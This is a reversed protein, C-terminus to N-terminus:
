FPKDGAITVRHGSRVQPYYDWVAHHEVCRNDWFAVSHPKWRFRVQFNPNQCHAFLFKLVADSEAKAMGVIHTTYQADAFLCKRRTVPHTRVIPQATVPFRKNPDTTYKRYIMEGDHVATLGELYAKMRDSLAEYAAYQSSFLTDGGVPPVTHLHLISGMPPEVNCSLDSHWSEGAVSTSNEDAHIPVVYPYGEVSFGGSHLILEGYHRAFNQHAEFDMPQDRFFVVQHQMLADHIERAQLPSLPRTLDVGEIEAGIAMTVPQVQISTYSM